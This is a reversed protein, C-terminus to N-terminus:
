LLGQRPFGMRFRANQFKSKGTDAALVKNNFLDFKLAERFRCSAVEASIATPPYCHPVM